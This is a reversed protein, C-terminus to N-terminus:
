QGDSILVTQVIYNHQSQQNLLQCSVGASIGAKEFLVNLQLKVFWKDPSRHTHDENVYITISIEPKSM